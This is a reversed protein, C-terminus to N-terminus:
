TKMEMEVLAKSRSATAANGDRTIWSIKLVGQGISRLHVEESASKRFGVAEAHTIIPSSYTRFRYTNSRASAYALFEEVIAGIVEPTRYGRSLSARFLTGRRGILFGGVITSEDEASIVWTPIGRALSVLAELVAALGVLLRPLLGLEVKVPASRYFLSTIACLDGARAPRSHIQLM